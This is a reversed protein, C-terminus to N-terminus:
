TSYVYGFLKLAYLIRIAASYLPAFTFTIESGGSNKSPWVFLVSSNKDLNGSPFTLSFSTKLRLVVTIRESGHLYWGKFGLVPRGDVLAVSDSM